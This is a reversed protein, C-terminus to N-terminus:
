KKTRSSSTRWSNRTREEPLRAGAERVDLKGTVIDAILRTRYERILSIEKEAQRISMELSATQLLLAALLKRQEFPNPLLLPFEGLTTSNTSALNTTKKATLEFYTRGHRSAM